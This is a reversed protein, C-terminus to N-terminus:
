YEPINFMSPQFAIQNLGKLNKIFISSCSPFTAGPVIGSFRLQYFGHEILYQYGELYDSRNSNDFIIIGNESLCKVAFVACLRRAM